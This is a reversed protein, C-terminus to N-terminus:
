RLSALVGLRIVEAFTHLGLREMLRARHVEVTRVSINLDYAIAKNPRGSLLGALVEHERPSLAAIREIAQAVESEHRFPGPHTLANDIMALLPADDFPKEVFDFAGSRMARMATAVNGHATMVIVPLRVGQKRFAELVALGDMRPMQVDLLVCGESLQPAVTLFASGSAFTTTTYGAAELLRALSQRFDMDDDVIHVIRESSMTMELLQRCQSGSSREVAKAHSTGSNGAM